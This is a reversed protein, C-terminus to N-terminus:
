RRGGQQIATLIASLALMLGLLACALGIAREFEGMETFMVISTTLVRTEGALNGGVMLVAGVGSLIAGLAAIVAALLGLRIERLLLWTRWLPPIGLTRAQLDWDADLAGVAALTIGIVLPQAIVVQAIVMAEMSYMLDLGGLAGNRWLLLAVALGVVVPPTGMGANVVGVVVGRGSFRSRGLLIGIPLGISLSIALAAFGMRLTRTTIEFVLPWTLEHMQSTVRTQPGPATSSEAFLPRFLPRGFRAMGFRGIRQQIDDDLLFAEFRQAAEAHGRDGLRLPNVRLVSYVNLLEPDPRSLAELGVRRQYALFTGIDSLAYARREGAVQLTLGMGSGTQHFGEWGGAPDLGAARLLARERKHTGSDDGRSVYPAEAKAIRRFGDAASAAARVGAPDEPPGVIAFHNEMFPRRSSLAGSAVLERESEPAHTLLVDVNGESGMRLAAGTGVAITKVRIGTRERFVPLLEDLLGSDRVSTTTALLLAGEEAPASIGSLLAPLILLAFALLRRTAM